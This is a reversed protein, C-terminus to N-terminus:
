NERSIGNSSVQIEYKFDMTKDSEQILQLENMYCGGLYYKEGNM